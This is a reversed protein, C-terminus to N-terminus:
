LGWRWGVPETARRLAAGRSPGPPPIRTWKKAPFPSLLNPLQLSPSKMGRGPKGLPWEPLVPISYPAGPPIVWMQPTSIGWYVCQELVLM